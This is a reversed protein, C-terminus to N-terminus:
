LAALSGDTHDIRALLCAPWWCGCAALRGLVELAGLAKLAGLAGLVGVQLLVTWRGRPRQRCNALHSHSRMDDEWGVGPLTLAGLVLSYTRDLSAVASRTRREEKRMLRREGSAAQQEKENAALM